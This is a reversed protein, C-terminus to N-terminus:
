NTKTKIDKLHEGGPIKMKSTLKSVNKLDINGTLSVIIGQKKGNETGNIYMLLENVYNPDNTQKVYMKVNNDGDKARMLETLSSKKLYTNVTTEMQKIIEQNETVFFKLESLGKILNYYEDDSEKGISSMLSFASKNVVVVKVDDMDEFKDFFSQAQGVQPLFTLFLGFLITKFTKNKITKM